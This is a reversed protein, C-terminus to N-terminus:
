AALSPAGPILAAPDIVLIPEGDREIVGCAASQWSQSLPIGSALPKPEFPAVDDLADVLMAYYHGDVQTIVARTGRAEDSVIGLAAVTDIVTVVRSRLASLGRVLASARPVPIIPGIDVVSDVHAASIAISRGAAHAILFLQIESM